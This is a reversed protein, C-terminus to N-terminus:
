NKLPHRKIYNQLHKANHAYGIGTSIYADLVNITDMSIDVPDIGGISMSAMKGKAEQYYKRTQDLKQTIGGERMSIVGLVEGKPTLLAGGSNGKNIPAQICIITETKEIGSIVGKHTLMAPTGLPYGSFFVETGIEPLSPDTHFPLGKGKQPNALRLIAFDHIIPSPDQETPTSLFTASVKTGDEMEIQLDDQPAWTIQIVQNSQLQLVWEKAAVHFCTVVHQEDIFFGSGVPNNAAVIRACNSRSVDYMQKDEEGCSAALLAVLLVPSLKMKM